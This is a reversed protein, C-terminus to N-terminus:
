MQRLAPVIEAHAAHWAPPLGALIGAAGALALGNLALKLSPGVAITVAEAGIALQSTQLAVMALGVGM